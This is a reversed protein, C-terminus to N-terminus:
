GDATAHALEDVLVVQAGSAIAAAVDFEAFVTGRYAIRRPALVELGGLWRSTEPRGHPEVWSVVVREGSDARRQGEALMAITKGVGPATGLYTRLSGGGAV